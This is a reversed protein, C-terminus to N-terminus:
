DNIAAEESDDDLVLLDGISCDFYKCLTNLVRGSISKSRRYYLNTLTTRSIGTDKSIQSMKVLKRGALVSLNNNLM